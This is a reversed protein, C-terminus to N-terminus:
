KRTTGQKCQEVAKEKGHIRKKRKTIGKKKKEPGAEATSRITDRTKFFLIFLLCLIIPKQM